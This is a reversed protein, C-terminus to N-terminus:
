IITYFSLFAIFGYFLLSWLYFEMDGDGSSSNPATSHGCMSEVPGGVCSHQFEVHPINAHPVIVICPLIFYIYLICKVMHLTSRWKVVISFPVCREGDGTGCHIHLVLEM